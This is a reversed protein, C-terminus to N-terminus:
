QMSNLIHHRYESVLAEALEPRDGQAIVNFTPEDSDPLLLVWGGDHHFKIGDVLEVERGQTQRMMRRMVKGKADWPCEIRDRHLYFSPVLELLLHLTLGSRHMNQLILGTAFLGDFLPHMLLEASVEMISRASEKTRQVRCGLGDALSELLHPASVPAGIVTHKFSHFFSLYQLVMLQDGDIRVGRESVLSMRRGDDDLRLGMDAQLATVCGPLQDQQAEGPLHILECHLRDLLLKVLSFVEPHASVVVRYPRASSSEFSTCALISSLYLETLSDDEYYAGLASLSARGYDEQWYSNEVKREAAKGIPLGQHDYCEFTCIGAESHLQVHLGGGAQLQRVAFRAVPPLVVGLDIVQVGVSQLAATLSRKLVKAFEHHSCSVTVAKGKALTAGYATGFRSAFEPTIEINPKGSVGNAKFLSKSSLDGWIFSSTLRSSERIHKKPWIKVNPEVTAKPGIECHSGIVSGDSLRSHELCNIRSALTAGRLENQEAIHNHDWLITRELSSGRAVRNGRGIICYEGIEVGDELQSDEGIYAPGTWKIGPAASVNEGVFVRPALEEGRIQVKALGDLMDFQTQRYQQLNGIDSWYGEAVYGYLPQEEALLEPFLQNSFDYEIDADFRNLVHPELIYIGTNVTDSFVEGWGPKELFRTVRGGEDTMVVGYQLPEPVQTLVLTAHSGSEEHFRVAETLDFDTLADGSIVLFREDLFSQANKVSGATGLPASEEFYHLKVGYDTGDGFYDRIVDPLYQITVAIETIGHKKLLDIIYEMCPRGLLPVMPKPLHCTLPRLRTGKGGAMIVAKM